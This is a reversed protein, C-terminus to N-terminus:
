SMINIWHCKVQCGCVPCRFEYDGYTSWISSQNDFSKHIDANGYELTSGCNQCKVTNRPVPKEEIIKIM